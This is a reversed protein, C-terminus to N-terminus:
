YVQTGSSHQMKNWSWEGANLGSTFCAVNNHANYNLFLLHLKNAEGASKKPGTEGRDERRLGNDIVRVGGLSM